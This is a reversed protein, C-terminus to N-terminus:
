NKDILEEIIKQTNYKQKWKPYDKKFKRLNSIYWVHDGVRPSSYFKKKIQINKIKEVAIILFEVFLISSSIKVIFSFILLKFFSKSFVFNSYSKKLEASLNNSNCFKYKSLSNDSCFISFIPIILLFKSLM